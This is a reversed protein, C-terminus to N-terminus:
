STHWLAASAQSCVSNADNDNTGHGASGDRGVEPALSKSLDSVVTFHQNSDGEIIRERVCRYQPFPVVGGRSAHNETRSKTPMPQGYKIVNLREPLLDSVNFLMGKLTMLRAIASVTTSRTEDMPDTVRPIMLAIWKMLEINESSKQFSLAMRLVARVPTLVDALAAAFRERSDKRVERLQEEKQAEADVYRELLNDIIVIARRRKLPDAEKLYPFFYQLRRGFPQRPLVRRRRDAEAL